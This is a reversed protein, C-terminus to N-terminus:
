NTSTKLDPQLTVASKAHRRRARCATRTPTSPKRIHRVATADNRHAHYSCHICPQWRKLHILASDKWEARLPQTMWHLVREGDDRFHPWPNPFAKSKISCRRTSSKAREVDVFGERVQELEKRRSYDSLRKVMGHSCAAVVAADLAHHRDSDSRVKVLGWRARLFPTMQWEVGCM